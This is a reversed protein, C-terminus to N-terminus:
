GLFEEGAPRGFLGSTEHEVDPHGPHATEFQLFLEIAAACDNGHNEDATMGVHGHRDLGDLMASEIEQLLREAILIKDIANLTCERGIGVISASELLEVFQACPVRRQRGALLLHEYEVSPRALLTM